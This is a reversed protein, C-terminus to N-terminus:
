ETAAPEPKGEDPLFQMFVQNGVLVGRDTLRVRDPQRELLGLQVLDAIIDGFADDIACGWRREFRDFPVGERTLRLGLMMMEGMGLRQDIQEEGEVTSAKMRVRHIYEEPDRLTWWRRPFVTSYAGPGFGVYDQYRWYILNHRCAFRPTDHDALTASDHRAWNSIEYQIYGAAELRQRGVEYMTAAEDDDPASIRGESLWRAFPTGDEITLAYMSVHEPQLTVLRDLTAEWSEARQGPLGFILDININAFGAARAAHFARQAEESTHIRGLFRLEADDFSQVGLSLRNVGAERLAVFRSQDITGPNAEVTIEAQEPLQFSTRVAEIVETLLAPPLVTPTGGGLFLTHAAPHGMAEAARRIDEILAEVYAAFLDHLGAYTNFDCYPCKRQCFPIHVYIGLLADNREPDAEHAM